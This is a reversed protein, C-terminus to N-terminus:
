SKGREVPSAGGSRTSPESASAPPTAFRVLAGPRGFRPGAGAGAGVFFPAQPGEFFRKWGAAVEKAGRLVRNPSVFTAEEDLFSAFAAHDRDAMTKAFAMEASRVQGALGATGGPQQLFHVLQSSAQFAWNFARAPQNLNKDQVAEFLTQLRQRYVERRAPDRSVFIRMAFQYSM